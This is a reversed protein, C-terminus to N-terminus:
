EEMTDPNPNRVTGLTIRANKLCDGIKGTMAAEWVISTVYGDLVDPPIGRVSEPSITHVKFVSRDTDEMM